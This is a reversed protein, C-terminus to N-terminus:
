STFMDYYPMDKQNDKKRSRVLNMGQYIRLFVLIYRVLQNNIFSDRSVLGQTFVVTEIM